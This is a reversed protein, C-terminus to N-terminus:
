LIVCSPGVQRIAFNVVDTEGRVARPLSAEAFLAQQDPWRALTKAVICEKHPAPANARLHALFGPSFPPAPNSSCAVACHLLAVSLPLRSLSL